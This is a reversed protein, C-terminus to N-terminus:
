VPSHGVKLGARASMEREHFPRKKNGVKADDRNWFEQAFIGLVHGGEDLGLGTIVQVARLTHGEKGGAAGLGRNDNPDPMSLSSQDLVVVIWGFDTHRDLAANASSRTVAEVSVCENELLRYAGEREAGEPIVAAVCGGGGVSPVILSECWGSRGACM